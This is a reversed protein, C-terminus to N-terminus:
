YTQSNLSLTFGKTIFNATQLLQCYCSAEELWQGILVDGFCLDVWLGVLNVFVEVGDLISDLLHLSGDSFHYLAPIDLVNISANWIRCKVIQM